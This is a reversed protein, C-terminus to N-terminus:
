PGLKVIPKWSKRVTTGFIPSSQTKALSLAQAPDAPLGLHLNYAQSSPRRAQQSVERSGLAVEDEDHDKSHREKREDHREVYEISDIVPSNPMREPLEFLEKGQHKAKTKRTDDVGRTSYGIQASLNGLPLFSLTFGAAQGSV